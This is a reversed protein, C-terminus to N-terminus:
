KLYVGLIIYFVMGLVLFVAFPIKRVIAVATVEPNSEAWRFVHEVESASLRSQLDETSIGPLGDVEANAFQMSSTITLIMGPKLQRIPIEEYNFQAILLRLLAIVIIAAYRIVTVVDFHIQHLLLGAVVSASFVSIILVRNQLLRIRGSAFAILLNLSFLILPYDYIVPGLLAFLIVDFIGVFVMNSLICFLVAVFGTRLSPGINTERKVFQVASDGILYLFGLLFAVILFLPLSLSIGLFPVCFEKPILLSMVIALKCDGGAWIHSFFLIFSIVAVFLINAAQITWGKFGFVIFEIGIIIVAAISAALLVSNRVVGNCIDSVAAYIGLVLLISLKIASITTM